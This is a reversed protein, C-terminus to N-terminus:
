AKAKAKRAAWSKKMRESIARRQVATMKRRGRKGPAEEAVPASEAPAGATLAALAADIRELGVVLDARESKLKEIISDMTM